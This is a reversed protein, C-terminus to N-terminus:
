DVPKQTAAIEKLARQERQQQLRRRLIREGFFALYVLVLLPHFVICLFGAGMIKLGAAFAAAVTTVFLLEALSFQWTRPTPESM